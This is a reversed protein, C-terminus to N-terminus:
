RGLGLSGARPVCHNCVVVGHRTRQLVKNPWLTTM